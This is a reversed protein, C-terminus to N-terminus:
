LGRRGIVTIYKTKEKVKSWCAHLDRFSRASFHFLSTFYCVSLRMLLTHILYYRFKSLCKSYAPKKRLYNEVKSHPHYTILFTSACVSHVARYVLLQCHKYISQFTAPYILDVQSIQTFYAIPTYINENNIEFQLHTKGPTLTVIFLCCVFVCMVYVGFVCILWFSVVLLFWTVFRCLSYHANLIAYEPINFRTARTLVLTESSSLAEKM